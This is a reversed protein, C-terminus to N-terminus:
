GTLAILVIGKAYCRNRTEQYQEALLTQITLTSM